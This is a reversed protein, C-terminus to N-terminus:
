MLDPQLDAGKHGVYEWTSLNNEKRFEEWRADDSEHTLYREGVAYEL